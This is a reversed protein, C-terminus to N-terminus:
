FSLWSRALFCNHHFINVLVWEMYSHVWEAVNEGEVEEVVALGMGHGDHGDPSKFLTSSVVDFLQSSCFTRLKPYM